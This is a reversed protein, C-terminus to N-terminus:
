RKLKYFRIATLLSVSLTAMGFIALMTDTILSRLGIEIVPLLLVILIALTYICSIVLCWNFVKLQKKNTEISARM